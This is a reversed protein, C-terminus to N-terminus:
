FLLMTTPCRGVRNQGGLFEGSGNYVEYRRDIPISRTRNQHDSTRLAVSVSDFDGVLEIGLDTVTCVGVVRYKLRPAKLAFQKSLPLKDAM